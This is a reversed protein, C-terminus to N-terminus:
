RGNIALRYAGELVDNQKNIENHKEICARGAKGMKHWLEPHEILFALKEALADSNREEVLFGSVDDEVLEPIGSHLSSVVPLKMAMAETLVTTIDEQDGNAATVSPALFM